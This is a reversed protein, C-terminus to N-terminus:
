LMEMATARIVVEDQRFRAALEARYAAWWARDLPETMVEIVIVDHHRVLGEDDEWTGQAPARTYATAGGFRATLEARVAAVDRQPFVRGQNDYLPLIVQVLFM